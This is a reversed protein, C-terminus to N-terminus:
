SAADPQENLGYNGLDAVAGRASQEPVGVVGTLYRYYASDLDAGALTQMVYGAHEFCDEPTWQSIRKGAAWVHVYPKFTSGSIIPEFRMPATADDQVPERDQRLEVITYGADKPDLGIPGRLQNVVAADHRAIVAARTVAAVYRVADDARLSLAVDNTASVTVIYSASGDPNIDSTVWIASPEPTKDHQENM